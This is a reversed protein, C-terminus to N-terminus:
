LWHPVKDEELIAQVDQRQRIVAEQDGCVLIEPPLPRTNYNSAMVFGYAGGALVAVLDGAEAQPLPRDKSFTDGTECVPGVIDYKLMPGASRRVLRIPHWADYLSPRMLDNMGADLIMYLRDAGRKIYSVRSLLLGANGTLLRGPEIIIQTNLPHIIDRVLQAYDRLSPNQENKYVIGLGGGLDLAPVPLGQNQFDRGLAALKEFALQFPAMTTLQSGIHISLGRPTLHKHSCINQYLRRVEEENIGFKNDSRGTTIKAHTGADVDPNFRLAVPAKKGTKEALAAIRALEEASEVNIQLVSAELATLIEIDTKGVGSFVVRQAPIDAYQTRLLEGGSVVDAGLGMTGLLKLIAINSNAKCAYAILPQAPPPLVAAFAAQLATVNASIQRASYIYSPTGYRAALQDLPIEDAHLVGNIESFGTPESM